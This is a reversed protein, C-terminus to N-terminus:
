GWTNGISNIGGKGELISKFTDTLHKLRKRSVKIYRFM